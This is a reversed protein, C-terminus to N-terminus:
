IRITDTYRQWENIVKISIFYTELATAIVIMNEYWLLSMRITFVNTLEGKKPFLRGARIVEVMIELNLGKIIAANHLTARSVTAEGITCPELIAVPSVLRNEVQWVVDLLKTVVGKQRKKKAFAGRPHHSTYGIEEFYDNEIVRWVDGDQPFM